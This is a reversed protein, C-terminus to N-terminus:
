KGKRTEDEEKEEEEDEKRYVQLAGGEPLMNCCINLFPGQQCHCKRSQCCTTQNTLELFVFHHMLLLAVNEPQLMRCKDGQLMVPSNESSM